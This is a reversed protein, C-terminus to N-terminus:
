QDIEFLSSEGSSKRNKVTAPSPPPNPLAEDGDMQYWTASAPDVPTPEVASQSSFSGKWSPTLLDRQEATMPQGRRITFM